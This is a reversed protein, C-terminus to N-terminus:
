LGKTALWSWLSQNHFGWYASVPTVVFNGLTGATLNEGMKEVIEKPLQISSHAIFFLGNGAHYINDEGFTRSLQESVAGTTTASLDSFALQFINM